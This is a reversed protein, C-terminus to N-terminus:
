DGFWEVWRAHFDARGVVQTEEGMVLTLAAGRASGTKEDAEMRVWAFHPDAAALVRLTREGEARADPPLYQWAVTSFVVRVEDPREPTVVREIWDLADAKEIEAPVDRAIAIAARCRELREPQDPWLYSLLRLRDTAENPDLPSLDCGARHVVAVPALDPSEGRWEPSLRVDSSADGGTVGALDCAFRDLRLNLGASCGIEFLALPRNTRRTVLSLVPWLAAARATENTQPPSALWDLVFAEHTELAHMAAGMDPVDRHPPYTAALAEDRGSLVLAHLAGCLRLPVSDASPSPDGPWDLVRAGVGTDRTLREGLGRCLRGTFRSGMRTCAEAQHAFAARVTEESM